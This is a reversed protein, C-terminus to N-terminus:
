SLRIFPPPLRIVCLVTVPRPCVAFKPAPTSTKVIIRQNAKVVDACAIGCSDSTPPVPMGPPVTATASLSDFSLVASGAMLESTFIWKGAWSVKWGGIGGPHWIL